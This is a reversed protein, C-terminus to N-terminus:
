GESEGKKRRRRKKKDEELSAKETSRFPMSSHTEKDAIFSVPRTLWVVAWSSPSDLWGRLLSSTTHTHTHKCQTKSSPRCCPFSPFHLSLVSLSLTVCCTKLKVRHMYLFSLLFLSSPPLSHTCDTLPFILSSQTFLTGAPFTLHCCFVSSCM